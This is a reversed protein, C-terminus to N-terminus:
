DREPYLYSLLPRPLTAAGALRDLEAKFRSFRGYLDLCMGPAQLGQGPFLFAVKREAAPRPTEALQTGPLPAGSAAARLGAALEDLTRVVLALRAADQRRQALTFAVDALTVDPELEALSAALGEAAQRLLAPTPASLVV